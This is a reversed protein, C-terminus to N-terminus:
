AHIFDKREQIQRKIARSLTKPSVGLEAALGARTELPNTDLIESAAIVEADNLKRPRGLTKGRRRAAELGEKTRHSLIQREWEALAAAITYLLKGEPVSTDFNQTLSQFQIGRENLKELELLADLVSRFARDLSLVIFVDGSQLRKMVCEYVPRSKSIASVGDEVFVQDCQGELALAQRDILQKNTSTRIYGFRQM